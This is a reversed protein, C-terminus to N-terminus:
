AHACYYDVMKDIIETLRTRPQYGIANSIRQLDPIRRQMDEFTADYATEYPVFIIESASRTKEKVLKALELISIEETSGLNFVKGYAEPKKILRTLAWVVDGVYCFCRRQTGDGYVTIPKGDLAQEVFRPLVMGYRASQRPGVTNFHRVVIASLQRERCYGLALYEDLAKSCAYSWRGRHTSGFVLDGDEALPFNDSKGYVESTSAILIVKKKRSALELVIETGLVNTKIARIPSEVVRQVGVVAALHYIFDARDILDTMVSANMVSDIVFEFRANGVFREINKLSGTSLDDIVLVTHGDALLPEILYSGIFGAGGTILYIAM